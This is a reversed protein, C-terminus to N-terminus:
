LPRPTFNVVCRRKAGQKFILPPIDGSDKYAKMAQDSFCKQLQAFPRNVINRNADELGTIQLVCLTVFYLIIKESSNLRGDDSGSLKGGDPEFKLFAQLHTKEEGYKKMAQHKILSPIFFTV